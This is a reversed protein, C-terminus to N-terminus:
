VSERSLEKIESFGSIKQIYELRNQHWSGVILMFSRDGPTSALTDVLQKVEAAGITDSQNCCVVTEQKECGKFLGEPHRLLNRYVQPSVVSATDGTLERYRDSLYMVREDLPRGLASLGVVAIVLSVEEPIVPDREAHIKLPAGRAGDAEIIVRDFQQMVSLLSEHDVAAIKQAADRGYLVTAGPYAQVPLQRDDSEIVAYSFPYRHVKPHAMRTTTTVLVRLGQQEWYGALHEIMTTKGGSGTVAVVWPGKKPCCERACADLAQVLSGRLEHMEGM